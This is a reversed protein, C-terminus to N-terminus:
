ISKNTRIIKTAYKTNEAYSIIDDMFLFLKIEEQETHIGKM